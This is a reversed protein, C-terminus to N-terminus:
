GDRRLRGAVGFRAVDARDVELFVLGVAIIRGFIRNGDRLLSFLARRDVPGKQLYKCTAHLYKFGTPKIISECMATDASAAMGTINEYLATVAIKRAGISATTAIVM